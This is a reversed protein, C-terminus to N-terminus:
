GARLLDAPGPLHRARVDRGDSRLRRQATRQVMRKREAPPVRDSDCGTANRRVQGRVVSRRHQRGQRPLCRRDDHRRHRPRLLEEGRRLLRNGVHCGHGRLQGDAARQVMRQRQASTVADGHHTTGHRRVQARVVHQGHERGPRPMSGCVAASASDPGSFSEVPDCSALGSTADGGSYSVSLPATYWGAGNAPRSPAATVQPATADYKLPLSSAGGNGANDRCSGSVTAASADPGAYTKAADCNAVGSTPDTAAFSVSLPAVYWGTAGAARAPTATTQPATADYKLGFSANRVNGAQDSCSGPM